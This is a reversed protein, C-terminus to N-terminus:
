KEHADGHGHGGHPNTDYVGLAYEVGVTAAFAALGYPFGRFIFKWFRTNPRGWVKEDYRWVENRNIQCIFSFLVYSFQANFEIYQRNVHM